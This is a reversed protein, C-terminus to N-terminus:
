LPVGNDASSTLSVHSGADPLEDVQYAQGVRSTAKMYHKRDNKWDADICKRRTNHHNSSVVRGVRFQDSVDHMLESYADAAKSEASSTRELM